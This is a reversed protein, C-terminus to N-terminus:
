NCKDLATQSPEQATDINEDFDIVTVTGDPDTITWTGDLNSVTVTGDPETMTWTGDPNDVTVIGEPSTVTALGDPTTVIVVGDPHKVTVTGDLATETITSTITGDPAIVSITGGPATVTVTGDPATTTSTRDCNSGYKIIASMTGGDYNNNIVSWTGDSFTAIITSIVTGDSTSTRIVTGDPFTIFVTDEDSEVIIEEAIAPAALVCMGIFGLLVIIIMNKMTASSHCKTNKIMNNNRVITVPDSIVRMEHLLLYFQM